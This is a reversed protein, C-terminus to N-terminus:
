EADSKGEMAFLNPWKGDQYLQSEFREKIGLMIPSQTILTTKLNNIFDMVLVKGHENDALDEILHILRYITLLGQNWNTEFLISIDGCLVPILAEWNAPMKLADWFHKPSNFQRMVDETTVKQLDDIGGALSNIMREKAKVLKMWDETTLTNADTGDLFFPHEKTLYERPEDSTPIGVDPTSPATNINKNNSRKSVM